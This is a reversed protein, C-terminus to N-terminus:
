QFNLYIHNDSIQGGALASVCKLQAKKVWPRLNFHQTNLQRTWRTCQLCGESYQRNGRLVDVIYAMIMQNEQNSSLLAM